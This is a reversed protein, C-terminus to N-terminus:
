SAVFTLILSRRSLTKPFVSRRRSGAAAPALRAPSALLQGQQAAPSRQAGRGWGQRRRSSLGVDPPSPPLSASDRSGRLQQSLRQKSVLQYSVTQQLAPSIIMNRYLLCQQTDPDVPPLTCTESCSWRARQRRAADSCGGFNGTTHVSPQSM